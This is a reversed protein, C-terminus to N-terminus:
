ASYFCIETAIGTLIDAHITVFKSFQIGNEPIHRRTIRPLDSMEPSRIAGTTLTSPKLSSPVDASDLLQLVSRLFVISSIREVRIISATHEESVDIRVFAVNMVDRFVANKM